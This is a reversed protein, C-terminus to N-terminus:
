NDPLYAPNCIANGEKSQYIVRRNTSMPKNPGILSLVVPLLFMGHFFGFLIVLLMVRFFSIFVYSESFILMVIGVISSAASNFVPGATLDLAKGVRANKDPGESTLFAHCIHASYDVSFGVSMIVHIMTISSLSLDWFYMFGLVGAIISALSISVCLILFPKPMIICAVVFVAAVAIGVTQITSPLVIVYQEFFIFAPSYAFCHIDSSHAIERMRMMINGQKSSEKISKTLIHFRTAVIKDHNFVVDNRFLQSENLFLKLGNVFAKESTNAFVSSHKYSNLWNLQDADEVDVDKAANELLFDIGSTVARSNYDLPVPIVFSIPFQTPYYEFDFHSFKFYYSSESVLNQLVLGQQLNKIGWVSCVIYTVYGLVTIVKALPNLLLRPMLLRPIKELMSEQEDRTTSPSGTCCCQKLYSKTQEGEPYALPACTLCHRNQSVRKEHLVMCGLFFTIQNFYCLGVATATFMCFNRVSKFVSTIGVFFAIVNTLSTITISTGSTKMVHAIKAEIAATPDADALGSMMIFMDDLGIGIILFPMVGVINVFEIHLAAMLGFSGLIALGASIVGARGLHGRQSVCNGGATAFSAYTIMLTFTLSFYRVDGGTNANLETNLSDSVQYAIESDNLEINRMIELFHKEWKESLEKFHSSDQRLNFRLKFAVASKLTGNGFLPSGIVSTFKNAKLMTENIFGNEFRDWFATELLFDGDIVCKGSRRACVTEYQYRSNATENVTFDYVFNVVRKIELQYSRNLVNGNEFHKIIVEGFPGLSAMSQQHYNTATFDSFLSEVQNRDQVAQSNTPTYVSELDSDFTIWQINVGLLGNLLFCIIIATCPYRTLVKGYIAFMKSTGNELKVSFGMTKSLRKEQFQQKMFVTIKASYRRWYSTM